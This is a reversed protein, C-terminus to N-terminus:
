AARDSDDTSRVRRLKEVANAFNAASQIREKLGLELFCDLLSEDIADEGDRGAASMPATQWMVILLAVSDLADGEAYETKTDLSPEIVFPHPAHEYSAM